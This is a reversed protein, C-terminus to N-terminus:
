SAVKRGVPGMTMLQEALQKVFKPRSEHRAEWELLIHCYAIYDEDTRPTRLKVHEVLAQRQGELRRIAKELWAGGPGDIDFAPRNYVGAMAENALALADLIHRLEVLSCREFMVVDPAYKNLWRKAYASPETAISM